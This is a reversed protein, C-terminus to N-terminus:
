HNVHVATSPLITTINAEHAPKKGYCLKSEAFQIFARKATSEDINLLEKSYNPTSDPPQNFQSPPAPIPRKQGWALQGYVSPLGPIPLVPINPVILQSHMNESLLIIFIFKRSVILM